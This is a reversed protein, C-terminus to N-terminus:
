RSLKWVDSFRKNYSVVNGEENVVLIGDLSVEHIAGLLSIHFKRADEAHKRETIDRVINLVSSPRGSKADRVVRLNAEVWIYDGNRRRIRAEMTASELGSRLDRILAVAKPRDEPHILDISKLNTLDQEAWGLIRFAAASSYSRHGDFDALTIIDRSNETVLAHLAAIKKLRSEIANHSELVVSVTYLMFMASAIYVQLGIAPDLQSASHSVGFPGQGRLTYFSGMGAVFLTAMAAWGLGLRVLLLILLPYVIFLVSVTNQSFAALTVAALLILYGWNKGLTLPNRFHARFIAVCAPTAVAAGLADAVAWQMLGTGTAPFWRTQILTYISGVVVPGVIVAFGIFRMLYARDTFRPFGTSSRRLLFASILVEAINLADFVLNQQWHAKVLMSGTVLGLYGVFLYSAWHKRPALLLYALLVGNAIWIFHNAMPAFRVLVASVGVALFCGALRRARGLRRPWRAESSGDGWAFRAYVEAGM